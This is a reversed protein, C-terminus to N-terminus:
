MDFKEGSHRKQTSDKNITNTTCLIPFYKQTVRHNHCSVKLNLYLNFADVYSTM